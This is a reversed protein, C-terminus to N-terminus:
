EDGEWSWTPGQGQPRHWCTCVVGTENICSLFRGLLGPHCLCCDQNHFKMTPNWTSQSPFSGWSRKIDFLVATSSPSVWPLCILRHSALLFYNKFVWVNPFQLFDSFLCVHLWNWGGAMAWHLPHQMHAQFFHLWMGTETGMFAHWPGDKWVKPQVM